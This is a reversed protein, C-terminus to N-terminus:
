IKKERGCALHFTSSLNWINTRLVGFAVVPPQRDGGRGPGVRGAASGGASLAIWDGSKEGGIAAARM